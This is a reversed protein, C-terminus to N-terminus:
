HWVIFTRRNHWETLRRKIWRVCQQWLLCWLTLALYIMLFLGVVEAASWVQMEM